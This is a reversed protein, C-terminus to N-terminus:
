EAQAVLNIAVQVDYGVTDSTEWQGQGLGFSLRNLSLMGKVHAESGKKKMELTFPMMVPMTVDRISLNAIAIYRGEDAAEFKVTEFIAEPYSTIYFWEASKMQEDREADQSDLSGTQITIKAKSQELKEPDFFINGDFKNFVGTFKKGMVSSQFELFSKEPVIKWKQIAAEDLKIKEDASLDTSEQSFTEQTVSATKYKDELVEDAVFKGIVLLFLVLVFLIFFTKIKMNKSGAMKELTQDKDIFYHKLAGVAHLLISGILVYALVEHALNMVRALQMDRGVLDPMEVGFFPVPYDGASSMLWGTLPMGIMAVYLSFHILKALIKEWYQHGLDEEPPKTYFRWILRLGVLWLVLLGFSKHKGYLEIKEPSYALSTMYFGVPILGLIILATAWHFLRAVVGYQTNSNKFNM